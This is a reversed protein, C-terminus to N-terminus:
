RKFYNLDFVAVTVSLLQARFHTTVYYTHYMVVCKMHKVNMKKWENIEMNKIFLNYNHKTNNKILIKGM